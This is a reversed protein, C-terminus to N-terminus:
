SSPTIEMEEKKEVKERYYIVQELTHYPKDGPVMEGLVSANMRWAINSSM